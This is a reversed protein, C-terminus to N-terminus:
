KELRQLRQIATDRYHRPMLCEIQSLTTLFSESHDQEESDGWLGRAVHEITIGPFPRNLLVIEDGTECTGETVVQLFYGTWGTKRGLATIGTLGLYSDVKPCPMRPGTVQFVAQKGIQYVDGICVVCPLLDPHNVVFNEGFCGRKMM